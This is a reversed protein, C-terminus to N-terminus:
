PRDAEASPISRRVPGAPCQDQAAPFNDEEATDAVVRDTDLGIDVATDRVAPEPGAAAIDPDALDAAIDPGALEPATEVATDPAAAQATDMAIDPDAPEPVAM